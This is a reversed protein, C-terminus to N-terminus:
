NDIKDLQFSRRWSSRSLKAFSDKPLLSFHGDESFLMFTPENANIKQELFDSIAFLELDQGLPLLFNDRQWFAKGRLPLLPQGFILAANPSLITWLLSEFRVDSATKMYTGLEELGVVMAKAEQTKESAVLRISLTQQVGFFNHNWSPIRVPLANVIPTWLGDPVSRSPLLSGKPFLKGEDEYYVKAGLIMKVELSEIQDASFGKIWIGQQESSVKLDNWHWIAALSDQQDTHVYLYWIVGGSAHSAM